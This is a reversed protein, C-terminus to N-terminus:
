CLYLVNKLHFIHFLVKLFIHHKLSQFSSQSFLLQLNIIQFTGDRRGSLPCSLVLLRQLFGCSGVLLPSLSEFSGNLFTVFLQPFLYLDSM